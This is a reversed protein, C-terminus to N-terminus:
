RERTSGTTIEAGIELPSTQKVFGQYNLPITAQNILSSEYNVEQQITIWFSPVDSIFM